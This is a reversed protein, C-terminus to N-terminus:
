MLAKQYQASDIKILEHDGLFINYFMGVNAEIPFTKSFRKFLRSLWFLEFKNCPSKICFWTTLTMTGSCNPDCYLFTVKCTNIHSINLLYSETLSTAGPGRRQLIYIDSKNVSVFSEFNVINQRLIVEGKSLLLLNFINRRISQGAAPM